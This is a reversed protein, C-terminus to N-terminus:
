ITSKPAHNNGASVLICKATSFQWSTYIQIFVVTSRTLGSARSNVAKHGPEPTKVTNSQELRGAEKDSDPRLWCADNGSRKDNWGAVDILM